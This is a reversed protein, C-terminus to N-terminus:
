SSSALGRRRVVRVRGRVWARAGAGAGVRVRVRLGGAVMHGCLAVLEDDRERDV